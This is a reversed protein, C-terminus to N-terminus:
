RVEYDPSDKFRAAQSAPMRKSKGTKRQTVTVTPEPGQPEKRSAAVDEPALGRRQAIGQYRKAADEYQHVHAGFANKAQRLFDARQDPNLREGDVIRNYQNRLRDDLGGANQANAFEGERVTSGPDLMKMYAFILSLDGAASPNSASSQIKEYAASVDHFAKVQPLANFEKRMADTMQFDDSAKKAGAKEVAKTKAVAAGAAKERLRQKQQESLNLQRMLAEIGKRSMKSLDHGPFLRGLAARDAELEADDQKAQSTKQETTAKERATLARLREAMARKYDDDGTPKPQLKAQAVAERLQAAQEQGFAQRRQLLKDAKGPGRDSYRVPQRAGAAALSDSLRDLSSQREDETQAKALAADDFDAPLAKPRAYRRLADLGPEPPLEPTVLTLEDEEDDTTRYYPLAM